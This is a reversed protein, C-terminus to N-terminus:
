TSSYNFKESFYPLTLVFPAILIIALILLVINGITLNEPKLKKIWM